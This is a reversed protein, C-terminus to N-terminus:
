GQRYCFFIIKYQLWSKSIGPNGIILNNLEKKKTRKPELLCRIICYEDPRIFLFNPLQDSTYGPIRKPLKIIDLYSECPHIGVYRNEDETNLQISNKSM